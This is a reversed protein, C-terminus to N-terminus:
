DRQINRYNRVWSTASLAPHIEEIFPLRRRTM